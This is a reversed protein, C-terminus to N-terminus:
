RGMREEVEDLWNQVVIVASPEPEGALLMLFREGDPHVDYMPHGAGYQFQEVPFLPTRELIEFTPATQVAAAVFSEAGRFFLETGDRSWVPETGGDVSVQSRRTQTDPFPRVYVQSSGSETSVYALWRGDPSLAPQWDLFDSDVIARAVTDPPPGWRFIDADTGGGTNTGTRFVISGDPAPFAEQVALDRALVLTAPRSGDAPRAWLDPTGDRDSLFYVTEGDASWTPRRNIGGTLTFRTLPGADLEKIWLDWTEDLISVAMKGGDPSLSLSGNTINGPFRWAPDIVRTAGRRDVWVPTVGRSAAGPRYLLTGDDSLTADVGVERSDTAIGEVLVTAAGTLRRDRLGIPAGMLAGDMTGFVLLQSETVQAPQAGETLFTRQGSELDVLWLSPRLAQPSFHGVLLTSGDPGFGYPAWVSDPREGPVVVEIEGGTAPVRSVGWTADIYYIRAGDPDWPGGGYASDALTRVAGGLLPAVRLTSPFGTSFSVESGDPSVRYGRFDAGETGRVPLPSTDEWRRIWLQGADGSGRHFVMGSGDPLLVGGETVAGGGESPIAFRDARSAPDPRTAVVGLVLALVAATGWGGLSMWRMRAVVVPDTAGPAEGHRFGEDALAKGFEQAATFRDAPLKELAKRIAADVNPPISKRVATASVPQGQIIKGLVAQATNGLYPPEGVLMEYLVCALSYIDSAPGVTQDGTAQEPSKYYPTGVSLGTETLRSGGAAGVAIAIGFDSVLPEGDQLLINAPKIDRHVVGHRHAHDLANAVATAIRVGEDVPLQRERALRAALTEGEVYPMVYFLFGDAEGSDFLPLIHPHKLNATTEIEALFREAGVVASLERKLVKLAVDRNHKVDTALYVTAMGGEGIKREIAYRGELAANLDSIVADPM